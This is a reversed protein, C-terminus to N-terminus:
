RGNFKKTINALVGNAGSRQKNLEESVIRRAERSLEEPTKQKIEKTSEPKKNKIEFDENLKITVPANSALTKRKAERILKSRPPKPPSVKEENKDQLDTSLELAKEDSIDTKFGTFAEAPLPVTIFAAKGDPPQPRKPPPVPFLGTETSNKEASPSGSADAAATGTGSPVASTAPKPESGKSEPMLSVYFLAGCAVCSYEGADGKNILFHSRCTPCAIRRAVEGSSLDFAFPVLKDGYFIHKRRCRGCFVKRGIQPKEDVKYKEGCCPCTLEYM